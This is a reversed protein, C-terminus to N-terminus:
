RARSQNELWVQRARHDLCPHILNSRKFLWHLLNEKERQSQTSYYDERTYLIDEVTNHRCAQHLCFFDLCLSISWIILNSCVDGCDVSLKIFIFLTSVAWSAFWTWVTFIWLYIFPEGLSQWLVWVLRIIFISSRTKNPAVYFRTTRVVVFRWTGGTLRMISVNRFLLLFLKVRLGLFKGELIVFQVLMDMVYM